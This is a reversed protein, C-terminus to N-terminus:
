IAGRERQLRLEQAQIGGAIYILALMGFLYAQIIAEVLHLMLLPVPVLFGAVLLALAYGIELSMVNGFLRVALALTRSIESILHFPLLIPTPSLYHKLYAMVGEARIGFWHVSLFVLVALGSTVSLDATPSHLGPIIGALNAFFIFIWLTAVFSFVLDSRGPLVSDIAEQMALVIGELVVQYNGPRERLRRTSLWSVVGLFLMIGWSTIVSGSPKWGAPLPVISLDALSM